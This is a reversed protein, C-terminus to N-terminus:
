SFRFVSVLNATGGGLYIANAHTAHRAKHTGLEKAIAMALPLMLNQRHREHPFTCFGCGKVEPVCFPHPLVGVLIQRRWRWQWQNTELADWREDDAMPRMAKPMPYGHLLRHRQPGAM